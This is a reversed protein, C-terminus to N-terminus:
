DNVYLKANRRTLGWNNVLAVPWFYNSCAKAAETLNAQAKIQVGAGTAKRNSRDCRRHATSPVPLYRARAPDGRTFCHFCLSRTM